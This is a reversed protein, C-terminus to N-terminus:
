MTAWSNRCRRSNAIMRCCQIGALEHLTSFLKRAPRFCTSTVIETRQRMTLMVTNIDPGSAILQMASETMENHIVSEREISNSSLCRQRSARDKPSANTAYNWDREFIDLLDGAASGHTLLGVDKWCPSGSNCVFQENEVNMGGVFSVHEDVVLIKRPNRLHTPARLKFHIVPKFVAFEGGAQM